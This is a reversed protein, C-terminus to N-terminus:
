LIASNSVNRRSHAHSSSVPIATEETRDTNSQQSSPSVACDHRSKLEGQIEGQQTDVEDDKEDDLSVAGTADQLKVEQRGVYAALRPALFSGLLLQMPHWTLLPLTYLGVAPHKDYMANILPLGIAITKHTCGYIAMVRLKPENKWFIGSSYWALAKLSTLCVFVSAIMLLIDGISTGTRSESSFTRCFITYVIFVMIFEQIRKFTPGHGTYFDFVPPVCKQLFQGVCLPVVVRLALKYVVDVVDVESETGLYGLILLPSLFVGLLNGFTSNVIALGEDGGASKTLVTVMNMTMSLCSAVVMSDALDDSLVQTVELVRSVGYVTSSVVGFNFVQVFVNFGIRQFAKSFEQTKLGLGAATFLACVAIWTATIDPYLYVAGLPPYARALLISTVILLLFENACYFSTCQSLLLARCCRCCCCPRGCKKTTTSATEVDKQATIASKTPPATDNFDDPV